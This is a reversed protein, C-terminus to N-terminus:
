RKPASPHGRARPPSGMTGIGAAITLTIYALAVLLVIAQVVPLDSLSISEWALYGVGPLAFVTEIVM